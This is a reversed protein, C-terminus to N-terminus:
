YVEAGSAGAPAARVARSTGAADAIADLSRMALAVITLAPNLGASTVFLGAGAVFLNAVGHVTGVDDAVSTAEDHGMRTTGHAHGAFMGAPQPPVASVVTHAGADRLLSTAREALFRKQAADEPHTQYEIRIAPLGAAGRVQGDLTIRNEARPLDEGLAHVALHRPYAHAAFRLLGEGYRPVGDPVPLGNDLARAFALPGGTFAAPMGGHLVGGRRFPAGLGGPRDENFDDVGVHQAPGEEAGMPEDFVGYAVAGTHFTLHRGVQDAGNGLGRPHRPSRSLLLLRAVYPANAALV